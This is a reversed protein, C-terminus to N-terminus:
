FSTPMIRGSSIKNVTELRLQKLADLEDGKFVQARTIERTKRSAIWWCARAEILDEANLTFVNTDADAALTAIKPSYHVSVTLTANPIPYFSLIGMSEAYVSPLGNANSVNLQQFEDYNMREAEYRSGNQNVMIQLVQSYGDTASLTYTQTGSVTFFSLDAESFYFFEREYHKIARKIASQITSTLNDRSFYDAISAQLESYTAV